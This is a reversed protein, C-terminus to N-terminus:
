PCRPASYTGSPDSDFANVATLVFDVQTASIATIEITGGPLPGGGGWCENGGRDPGTETMVSYATIQPDELDYVGVQQLAPPLTVYVQWHSGCPLEVTPSGCSVGLDSFHLVLDNPDLPDGGSSGSTSGSSDHEDWYEDWLVDLQGRTLAVAPGVVPEPNGGTPNGGTPNGGSPDGGTPNAGTTNGPDGSTPDEGTTGGTPDGSSGGDGEAVTGSCAILATTVVAVAVPAFYRLM